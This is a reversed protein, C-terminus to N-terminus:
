KHVHECYGEDDGLAFLSTWKEKLVEKESENLEEWNYPDWGYYPDPSQV